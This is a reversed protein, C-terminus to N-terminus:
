LLTSANSVAEEMDSLTSRDDIRVAAISLHQRMWSSVARNSIGDLRDHGVVHL